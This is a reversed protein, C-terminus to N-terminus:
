WRSWWRRGRRRATPDRARVTLEYRNPESEYDEGRGVYSVAGNSSGVAFRQGSGSALEYTVADGDPDEAEVAGLAVPRRRAPM